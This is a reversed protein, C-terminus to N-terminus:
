IAVAPVSQTATLTNGQLVIAPIHMLSCQIYAMHVATSDIDQLTAHMQRQYNIGQRALADAVALVMGGAGCAPENVTIFGGLAEIDDASLTGVNLGAMMRSVEFPTFFQGTWHNGLELGMFLQGLFDFPGAELGEVLRALMQPFLEVEAREYRGVIQLYRAERAERHKLDVANSLSIASMECFDAFVQHLRHRYAATRMLDACAKVPDSARALPKRKSM